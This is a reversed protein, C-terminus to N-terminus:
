LNKPNDKQLFHWKLSTRRQQRCRSVGFNRSRYPSTQSHADIYGLNSATLIFLICYVRENCLIRWFQTDKSELMINYYKMEMDKQRDLKKSLGRRLKLLGEM